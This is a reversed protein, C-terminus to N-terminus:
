SEFGIFVCIFQRLCHEFLMRYLKSYFGHLNLRSVILMFYCSFVYSVSKDQSGNLLCEIALLM